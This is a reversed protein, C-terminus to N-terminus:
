GTYQFLENECPVVKIGRWSFIDIEGAGVTKAQEYFEEWNWTNLISERDKYNHIGISRLKRIVFGEREESSNFKRMPTFKQGKYTFSEM